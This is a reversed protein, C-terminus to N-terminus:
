RQTLAWGVLAFYVLGLGLLFCAPAAGGLAQAILAAAVYVPLKVFFALVVLFTAPRTTEQTANTGTLRVIRWLAWMNFSVSGLGLAMGALGDPGGQLASLTLAVAAAVASWRLSSM